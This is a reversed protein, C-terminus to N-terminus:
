QRAIRADRHRDAACRDSRFATARHGASGAVKRKWCRTAASRLIQVIAQRLAAEDDALLVTAGRGSQEQSEAPMAPTAAVSPQSDTLPFYIEFRTGQGLTSHVRIHGKSPHVIGYVTALGLGTGKGDPKTTFFPEFIQTRTAADMGMGNDAIELVVWPGTTAAGDPADTPLTASNRTSITLRGGGPRADRANIALNAVVQELQASDCLIWTQKAEHRFTLEIDSGLLRPLMFESGTLSEHLNTLRL